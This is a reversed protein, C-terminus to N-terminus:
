ASSTTQRRRGPRRSTSRTSPATHGLFLAAISTKLSGTEGEIWLSLDCPMVECLPARGVAALLPMTVTAPAVHLLGLSARVADRVEVDTASPPLAYRGLEPADLEVEVTPDGIAGSATLYRWVGDIARWGTHSYVSRLAVNTSLLQLAERVADRMAQGARIAAYPGWKTTVWSMAAFQAAPVTARPLPQGTALAGDLCYLHVPEAGDDRTVHEAIWAAFNALPEIYLTGGPARRRRCLVGREILYQGSEEHPPGTAPSPPPGPTSTTAGRTAKSVVAAV